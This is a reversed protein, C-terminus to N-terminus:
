GGDNISLAELPLCFPLDAVIVIQTVREVTGFDWMFPFSREAPGDKLRYQM